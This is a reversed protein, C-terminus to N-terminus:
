ASDLTGSVRDWSVLRPSSMSAGSSVPEFAEAVLASRDVESVVGGTILCSGSVLLDSRVLSSSRDSFQGLPCGCLPEPPCDCAAGSPCECPPSSPCECSSDSPCDSFPHSLCDFPPGSSGECSSDSVSSRGSGSCYEALLSRGPLAWPLPKM